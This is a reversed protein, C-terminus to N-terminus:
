YGEGGKEFLRKNNSNIFHSFFVHILADDTKPMEIGTGNLGQLTNQCDLQVGINIDSMEEISMNYEVLLSSLLTLDRNELHKARNSLEVEWEHYSLQQLPYKTSQFYCIFKSWPIAEDNVLHFSKGLSESQQSLHVIAQSVYDIPLAEIIKVERDFIPFCGMLFCSKIFRYQTDQSNWVGTQSHWSVGGLRFISCPLGRDRAMMVLKEAVWKTQSYGGALDFGQTHELPDDERVIKMQFYKDAFFVGNTSIFNVSKIKNQCALRLVEKTGEVNASKLAIYPYLHNVLAGNHYIVDIQSALTQFQEETLGLLPKSLDGLVPIIRSSYLEENWLLYSEASEKLRRMGQEFNSSRVLCYISAQTKQLLEAVLFSGIFGTAGTLLITSPEVVPQYMLDGPHISSDLSLESSFDIINSRFKNTEIKQM